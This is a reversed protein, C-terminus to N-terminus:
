HSFIQELRGRSRWLFGQQRPLPKTHAFSASSAAAPGFTHTASLPTLEASGVEVDRRAEGKSKALRTSTVLVFAWVHAGGRASLTYMSIATRTGISKRAEGRRAENTSSTAAVCRAPVTLACPRRAEQM